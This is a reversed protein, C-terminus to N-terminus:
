NASASETVLQPEGIDLRAVRGAVADYEAADAVPGVRVRYLAPQSRADYRIVVNGIGQQELRGKIEEANQRQSFAGVQVYLAQAPAAAASAASPGSLAEVSVPATGDSLFGLDRAAAYSMDILRGKMFPGRDNIRVVISRGTKLNTVRATTPLPLTKHAATLGYMDYVEGSSTRKGHFERGYWSAVGQESYGDSDPLVEYREGMVSYFPPNGRSAPPMAAAPVQPPTGPHIEPSHEVPEPLGRVPRMPPATTCGALLAGLAVACTLNLGFRQREV